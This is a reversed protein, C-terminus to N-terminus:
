DFLVHYQPKILDRVESFNLNIPTSGRLYGPGCGAHPHIYLLTLTGPALAMDELFHQRHQPSCCFDYACDLLAEDTDRELERIYNVTHEKYLEYLKDVAATSVFLDNPELLKGSSLDVMQYFITEEYTGAGTGSWSVYGNVSVILFKGCKLYVSYGFDAELAVYDSTFSAVSKNVNDTIAKNLSMVIANTGTFRPTRYRYTISFPPLGPELSREGAIVLSDCELAFDSCQYPTPLGTTLSRTIVSTDTQAQSSSPLVYGVATLAVLLFVFRM